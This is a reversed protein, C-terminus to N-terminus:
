PTVCTVNAIGTGIVIRSTRTAMGAVTTVADNSLLWEVMFVSDFGRQEALVALDVAARAGVSFGWLSLGVKM